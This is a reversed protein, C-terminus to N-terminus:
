RGAGAPELDILSLEGVDPELRLTLTNMGREILGRPALVPITVVGEGASWSRRAIPREGLEVVLATAVPARVSITVPGAALQDDRLERRIRRDHGGRRVRYLRDGEGTVLLREFSSPTAEVARVISDRLGAHLVLYRLPFERKLLELSRTEELGSQGSRKWERAIWKYLVTHNAPEFVSSGNVIPLRHYISWRQWDAEHFPLEFLAGPTARKLYEYVEPLRTDPASRRPPPGLVEAVAAALLM